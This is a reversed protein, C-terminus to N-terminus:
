ADLIKESEMTVMLVAVRSEAIHEQPAMWIHARFIAVHGSNLDQELVEQLAFLHPVKCYKTSTFLLSGQSEM